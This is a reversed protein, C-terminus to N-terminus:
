RAALWVAATPVVIRAINLGILRSKARSLHLTIERIQLVGFRIAAFLALWPATNTLPPLILGIAGIVELMGITRVTQMPTRDVWEMMPQLQERTQFM